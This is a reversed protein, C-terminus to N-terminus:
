WAWPCCAARPFSPIAGGIWFGRIAPSSRAARKGGRSLLGQEQQLPSVGSGSQGAQGLTASGDRSQNKEQHLMEFAPPPIEASLAVTVRRDKELPFEFWGPSYADGFGNQGRSQEVPHPIGQSWEPESHFRGADSVVRLQRDAAPTFAFGIKGELVHCNQSFHYDAGGNRITESHFNRDEIDVRITLRVEYQPPLDAPRTGPQRAFTFVTTNSGELMDATMRLEVTRSDGADAVYNWVAPQGIEFSCLNQLNLATVFGDASIWARLRKVFVHRDVPYDPHLNAGLVCDYKSRIHGLDVCLRAMGGRGNTLLM